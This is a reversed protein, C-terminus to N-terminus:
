TTLKEENIQPPPSSSPFLWQSSFTQYIYCYKLRQRETKRQHNMFLSHIPTVLWSRPRTIAKTMHQLLVTGFYQNGFFNPFTHIICCSFCRKQHLHMLPLTHVYVLPSQTQRYSTQDNTKLKKCLVLFTLFCTLKYLDTDKSTKVPKRRSFM